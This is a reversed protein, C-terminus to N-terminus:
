CLDLRGLSCQTRKPCKPTVCKVEWASSRLWQQEAAHQGRSSFGTGVGGVNVTYKLGNVDSM